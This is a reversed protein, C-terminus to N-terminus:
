KSFRGVRENPDLGRRGAATLKRAVEVAHTVCNHVELCISKFPVADRNRPIGESDGYRMHQYLLFGLVIGTPPFCFLSRTRVVEPLVGAM